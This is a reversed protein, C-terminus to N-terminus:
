REWYQDQANKEQWYTSHWLDFGLSEIADIMQQQQYERQQQQYNREMEANIERIEQDYEERTQCSLLRMRIYDIHLGGFVKQEPAPGLDVLSSEEATPTWTYNSECGFVALLGICITITIIIKM